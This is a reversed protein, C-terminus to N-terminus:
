NELSSRRHMSKKLRSENFQSENFQNASAIKSSISRVPVCNSIPGEGKLPKLEVLLEELRNTAPIVFELLKRDLVNVIAETLSSSSEM